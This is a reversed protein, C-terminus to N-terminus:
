ATGSSNTDTRDYRGECPHYWAGIVRSRGSVGRVSARNTDLILLVSFVHKKTTQKLYTPKSGRPRHPRIPVIDELFM